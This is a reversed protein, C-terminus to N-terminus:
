QNKPPELEGTARRVIDDIPVGARQLLDAMAGARLKDGDRLYNAHRRIMSSLIITRFHQSDSRPFLFVQNLAVIVYFVFASLLGIWFGYQYFGFGIVVVVLGYAAFGLYSSFPPTIANQLGTKSGNGSLARGMTLTAETFRLKYGFALGALLLAFIYFIGM